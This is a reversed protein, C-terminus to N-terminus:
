LPEAIVAVVDDAAAEADPAACAFAVAAWRAMVAGGPSFCSFNCSSALAYKASYADPLEVSSRNFRVDTYGTTSVVIWVEPPPPM